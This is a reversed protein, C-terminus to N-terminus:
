SWRAKPTRFLSSLAMRNTRTNDREKTEYRPIPVACADEENTNSPEAVPPAEFWLEYVTVSDVLEDDSRTTTNTVVYAPVEDILADM